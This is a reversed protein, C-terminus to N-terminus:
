EEVFRAAIAAECTCRETCKPCEEATRDEIPERYVTEYGNRDFLKEPSDPGGHYWSDALFVDVDREHGLEHLREMLRSGVGRGTAEERVYGMQLHGYRDTAPVPEPEDFMHMTEVLADVDEYINLAMVGLLTGDGDEAVRVFRDPNDLGLDVDYSSDETFHETILVELPEEDAPQPARFGIAQM